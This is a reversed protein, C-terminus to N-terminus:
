LRVDGYTGGRELGGLELYHVNIASPPEQSESTLIREKYTSSGQRSLSSCWSFAM